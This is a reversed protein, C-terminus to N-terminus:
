TCDTLRIYVSCYWAHSDCTPWMDCDITISIGLGLDLFYFLYLRGDKVRVLLRNSIDTLEGKTVEVAKVLCSQYSFFNDRYRVILVRLTQL